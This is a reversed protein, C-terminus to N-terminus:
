RRSGIKWDEVAPLALGYRERHRRSLKLLAEVVEPPFGHRGDRDDILLGDLYLDLKSNGWLERITQAIRPFNADLVPWPDLEAPRQDPRPTRQREIEEDSMLPPYGPEDEPHAM